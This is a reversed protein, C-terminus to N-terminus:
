SMARGQRPLQGTFLLSLKAHLEWQTSRKTHKQCEEESWNVTPYTKRLLDILPTKKFLTSGGLAYLQAKSLRYWDEPREIAYTREVKAMFAKVNEESQWFGRPVHKRCSVADWAGAKGPTSEELCDLLAEHMSPYRALLQGGGADRVDKVSVRRWDQPTEIGFTSSLRAFFERRKDADDWYGKRVAPRCEPEYFEEEPFCYRLATIVSGHRKLLGSGGRQVIEEASVRKWASAPPGNSPLEGPAHLSHLVHLLFARCNAPSNWFKSRVKNRCVYEELGEEPFTDKLLDAVAGGYRALVSHGGMAQIDEHRVRKWDEPVEVAFRERVTELFRRRNERLAWHGREQRETPQLGGSSSAVCRLTGMGGTGLGSHLMATVFRDGM